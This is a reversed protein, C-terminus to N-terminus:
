AKFADFAFNLKIEDNIINDQLDAFIKKSNYNVNWETRDLVIDKTQVRVVDGDVTVKATLGIPKTIGKITLNGYVMKNFEDNGELDTVKTIDFRSMPYKQVNFFHDEKGEDLGKLHRELKTKWEGEQDQVDITNMDIVFTGGTIQDNDISLFGKAFNITGNHKGGIKSAYWNMKAENSKIQYTVGVPNAPAALDSVQSSSQETDTETTAEGGKDNKCSSLALMVGLAFFTLISFKKM